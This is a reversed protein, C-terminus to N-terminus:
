RLDRKKQEGKLTVSKTDYILTANKYIEMATMEGCYIVLFKGTHNCSFKHTAQLKWINGSHDVVTMTYM